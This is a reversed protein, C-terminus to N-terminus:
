DLQKKIAYFREAIIKAEEWVQVAVEEYKYRNGDQLTLEIWSEIVSTKAAEDSCILHVGSSHFKKVDTFFNQIALRQAVKGKRVEGTALETIVCNDAYYLEFAEM